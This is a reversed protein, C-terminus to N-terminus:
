FVASLELSFGAPPEMEPFGMLLQNLVEVLPFLM